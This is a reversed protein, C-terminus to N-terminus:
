RVLSYEAGYDYFFFCYLNGKNGQASSPLQVVCVDVRRETRAAGMNSGDVQSANSICRLAIYGPKDCKFCVLSKVASQSATATM